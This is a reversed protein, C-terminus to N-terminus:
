GSFVGFTPGGQRIFRYVGPGTIVLSPSNTTLTAGISNYNGGDDKLQIIVTAGEPVPGTTTKLCVALSTTVTIDASAAGTAAVSLINAAAM